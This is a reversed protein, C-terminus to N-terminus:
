FTVSGLFAGFRDKEDDVAITFRGESDTQTKRKDARVSVGAVPKGETDTVRGFLEITAPKPMSADPAPAGADGATDGSGADADGGGDDGPGAPGEVGAAPGAVPPGEPPGQVVGRWTNM